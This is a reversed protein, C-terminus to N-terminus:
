RELWAGGAPDRRRLRPGRLRLRIRQWFGLRETRVYFADGHSVTLETYTRVFGRAELFADLDDLLPQGEYVETTSVETGIAEVHERITAEAGRLCELEYGQTDLVLVNHQAPDIGREALLDDLPVVEVELSEGEEQAPPLFKRLAEGPPLLSNSARENGELRHMVARGRRAGCAVNLLRVQDSAPVRTQLRAFVEPQPEIWVQREVGWKRYAAYEQGVHAGVHIVGRPAVHYQRALRIPNFGMADNHRFGWKGAKSPWAVPQLEYTTRM